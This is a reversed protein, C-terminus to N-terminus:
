SGRPGSRKAAVGEFVVTAFQDALQEAPLHGDPRYWEVAWDLAGILSMVMARLDLDSRIEGADRAAQMMSLWFKVYSRQQGTSERRVEEPVQWMIRLLGSTYTGGGQLVAVLHATIVMYLREIHTADSPLDALSAKVIGSTRKWAVQLLEAVLHERSDFHYYLSGTQMGAASAVDVLRTGSYGNERFVKAAADLIRARTALRRPGSPVVSLPDDEALDLRVPWTRHPPVAGPIALGDIFLSVFQDSLADVTLGRRRPRYWDSSSNLAATLLMRLASLDLDSRLQGSNRAQALLDRWYMGYARQAAIRDRRIGEPVQGMIRITASTYNGIGLVAVLHARLAEALRDLDSVDDSLDAVRGRVFSGTREQGERLVEDVLHERSDFHYYLSGAQMGAAAAIDSLRAASYGKERFVTAAADLIRERTVDAKKRKGPAQM